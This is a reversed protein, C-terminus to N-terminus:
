PAAAQAVGRISDWDGVVAPLLSAQLQDFNQGAVSDAISNGAALIAQRDTPQLSAETTCSLGWLGTSSLAPLFISFCLGTALKRWANLKRRSEMRLEMTSRQNLEPLM